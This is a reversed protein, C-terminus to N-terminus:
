STDKSAASSPDSVLVDTPAEYNPAVKFTLVGASTIEFQSGDAGAVIGYGTISDEADADSASVTVLAATSNESVTIPSIAAFVPAQNQNTMGEVTDSWASMGEDSEARVQVDYSTSPSLPSITYELAGSGSTWADTM